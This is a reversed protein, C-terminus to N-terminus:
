VRHQEFLLISAATIVEPQPPLAVPRCRQSVPPSEQELSIGRVAEHLRRNQARIRSRDRRPINYIRLSLEVVRQDLALLIELLRNPDSESVVQNRLERWKRERQQKMQFQYWSWNLFPFEFLKDSGDIRTIETVAHFCRSHSAM